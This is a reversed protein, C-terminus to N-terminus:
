IAWNLTYIKLKNESNNYGARFFSLEFFGPQLCARDARYCKIVHKTGVRSAVLRLGGSSIHSM